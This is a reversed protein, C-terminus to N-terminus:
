RWPSSRKASPRGLAGWDASCLRERSNLKERPSEVPQNPPRSWWARTCPRQLLFRPGSTPTSSLQLAPPQHIMWVFAARFGPSPTTNSSGPDPGSSGGASTPPRRIATCCRGIPRSATRSPGPRISVRPSEAPLGQQSVLSGASSLWHCRMAPWAVGSHLRPKRSRGCPLSPSGKSSPTSHASPSSGAAITCILQAGDRGQLCGALM